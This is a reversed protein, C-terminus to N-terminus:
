SSFYCIMARGSCYLFCFHSDFIVVCCALVLLRGFRCYVRGEKYGVVICVMPRAYENAALTAGGCESIVHTHIRIMGGWGSAFCFVPGFFLDHNWQHYQHRRPGVFFISSSSLCWKNNITKRREEDEPAILCDAPPVPNNAIIGLRLLYAARRVRSHATCTPVQSLKRAIPIVERRQGDVIFVKTVLIHHVLSNKSVHVVVAVATSSIVCVYM